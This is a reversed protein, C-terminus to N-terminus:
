SSFWDGSWHFIKELEKLFDFYYLNGLKKKKLSVKIQKPDFNDQM